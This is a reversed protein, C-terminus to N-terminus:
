KYVNNTLILLICQPLLDQLGSFSVLPKHKKAQFAPLMFQSQKAINIKWETISLLSIFSHSINWWWRQLAASDVNSDHAKDGNCNQNYFWLLRGQIEEQRHKWMHCDDKGKELPWVKWIFSLSAACIHMRCLCGWAMFKLGLFNLAESSAWPNQFALILFIPAFQLSHTYVLLFISVLPRFERTSFLCGWVHRCMDERHLQNSGASLGTLHKLGVRSRRLM